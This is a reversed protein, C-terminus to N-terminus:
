SLNVVIRSQDFNALKNYVVAIDATSTPGASTGIYLSLISGTNNVAAMAPAYLESQIVDDGVMLNALGWAALADKIIQDGNSPFGTRKKVNLTIYVPLAIPRDFRINQPFGATDIVQVVTSGVLPIGSPRKFWITDAVQQDTGGQVICYISNAPQGNADVASTYNEYVRASTVGAVQGLAGRLADTQGQGNAATSIARRARLQSDSEQYQGPTAPNDNTVSDLGYSPSLSITVTGAAATFPGYSQARADAFATGTSDITADSKTQWITGTGDNSQFLSNAPIVTGESGDFRLGVTSYAGPQRTLYNLQVLLSLANGTATNPNFSNVAALATQDLNNFSEALIGLTSGDYSNVDVNIDSGWIGQVLAVLALFRDSLSSMHFGTSDIQSM